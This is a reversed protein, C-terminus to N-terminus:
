EAAGQAKRRRGKIFRALPLVWKSMVFHVILLGSYAAALVYALDFATLGGIMFGAALPAAKAAETGLSFNAATTVVEKGM